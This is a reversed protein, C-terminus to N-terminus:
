KCWIKTFHHSFHHPNSNFKVGNQHFPTFIPTPQLHESFTFKRIYVHYLSLFLAYIFRHHSTRKTTVKLSHYFHVLFFFVLLRDFNWEFGHLYMLLSGLPIRSNQQLFIVYFWVRCLNFFYKNEYRYGWVKNM